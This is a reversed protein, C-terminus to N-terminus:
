NFPKYGAPGENKALPAYTGYFCKELFSFDSINDWKSFLQVLAPHLPSNETISLIYQRYDPTQSLILSILSGLAQCELLSRYKSVFEDDGPDLETMMKRTVTESLTSISASELLMEYGETGTRVILDLLQENDFEKENAEMFRSYIM